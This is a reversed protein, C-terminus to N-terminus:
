HGLPFCEQVSGLACFSYFCGSSAPVHTLNAQVIIGLDFVLYM